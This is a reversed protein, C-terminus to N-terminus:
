GSTSHLFSKVVFLHPDKKKEKVNLYIKPLNKLLIKVSDCVFGYGFDLIYRDKWLGSKICM